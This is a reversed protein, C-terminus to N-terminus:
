RGRQHEDEHGAAGEAVDQGLPLGVVRVRWRQGGVRVVRAWTVMGGAEGRVLVLTGSAQRCVAVLPSSTMVRSTAFM